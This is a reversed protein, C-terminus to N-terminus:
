ARDTQEATMASTDDADLHLRITGVDIRELARQLLFYRLEKIQNGVELIRSAGGAGTRLAPLDYLQRILVVHQEDLVRRVPHQPIASVFLRREVLKRGLARQM